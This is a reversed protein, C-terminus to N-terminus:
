KSKVGARDLAALVDRDKARARMRGLAKQIAPDKCWGVAEIFLNTRVGNKVCQAGFHDVDPTASVDLHDLRDAILAASEKPFYYLLRMAAAIQFNGGTDWGDLSNGNFVGETAYDLLLSDFLRQAPNDSAWIERVKACVKPNHVPTTIAIDGTNMADGGHDAPCYHRGVIQGLAAFCVDGVKIRYAEIEPEPERMSPWCHVGLGLVRKELPNAPNGMVATEFWMMESAAPHRRPDEVKILLGTTGNDDLSKLLFPMARPGYEVLKRFAPSSKVKEPLREGFYGFRGVPLFVTEFPSELLGVVDEPKDIDYLDRILNEIEEKEDPSLATRPSLKLKPVNGLKVEPQAPQSKDEAASANYVLTGPTLVLFLVLWGRRTSM